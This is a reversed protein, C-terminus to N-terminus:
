GSLTGVSEAKEELSQGSEVKDMSARMMKSGAMRFHVIASEVHRQFCGKYGRGGDQQRHQSSSASLAGQFHPLESSINNTGNCKEMWSHYFRCVECYFVCMSSGSPAPNSQLRPPHGQSQEPSQKQELRTKRLKKRQPEANRDDDSAAM